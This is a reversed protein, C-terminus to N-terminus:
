LHKAKAWYLAFRANCSWRKVKSHILKLVLYRNIEINLNQVVRRFDTIHHGIWLISIILFSSIVGGERTTEDNAKCSDSIEFKGRLNSISTAKGDEKHPRTQFEKQEMKFFMAPMQREHETRRRVIEESLVLFQRGFYRDVCSVSERFDLESFKEPITSWLNSSALTCSMKCRSVARLTSRSFIKLALFSVSWTGEYLSMVSSSNESTVKVNRSYIEKRSLM